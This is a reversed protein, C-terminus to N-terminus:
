AIWAPVEIPIYNNSKREVRLSDNMHSVLEEFMLACAKAKREMNKIKDAGEHMEIEEADLIEFATKNLAEAMAQPAERRLALISAKIERSDITIRPAVM